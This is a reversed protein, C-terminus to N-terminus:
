NLTRSWRPLRPLEQRGERRWRRSRPFCRPLVGRSSWGLAVLIRRLRFSKPRPRLRSSVIYACYGPGCARDVYRLLLPTTPDANVTVNKKEEDPNRGSTNDPLAATTPSAPLEPVARWGKSRRLLVLKGAWLVPRRLSHAAHSILMTPEQCRTTGTVTGPVRCLRGQKALRAYELWVEWNLLEQSPSPRKSAPPM